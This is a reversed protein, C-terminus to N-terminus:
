RGGEGDARARDIERLARNLDADSMSELQEILWQEAKLRAQRERNAQWIAIPIIIAATM